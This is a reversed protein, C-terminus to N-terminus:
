PQLRAQVIAIWGVLRRVVEDLDTTVLQKEDPVALDDVTTLRCALTGETALWLLVTAIAGAPIPEPELAPNADM